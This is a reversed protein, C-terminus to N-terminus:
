ALHKEEMARYNIKGTGMIPIQNVKIITSVKILNSFGAEKLAQNIEEITTDFTAFLVIKPRKGTEEKGCIALIPGEQRPWEKDSAMHLLAEEVAPLSIM